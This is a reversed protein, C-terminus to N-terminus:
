EGAPGDSGSTGEAQAAEAKKKARRERDRQRRRERREAEKHYAAAKTAMWEPIWEPERPFQDLELAADGDMVPEDNDIVPERMWDCEQHLVGEAAEMWFHSWLWAGRHLDAHVRRLDGVDFSLASSHRVLSRQDDVTVWCLERGALAISNSELDLRSGGAEDILERLSKEIRSLLKVAEVSQTEM